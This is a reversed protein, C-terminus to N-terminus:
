RDRQMRRAKRAARSKARRARHCAKRAANRLTEAQRMHQLLAHRQEPPIPELAEREPETLITEFGSAKAVEENQFEQIIGQKNM